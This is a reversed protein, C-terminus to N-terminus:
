EKVAGNEQVETEPKQGVVKVGQEGAGTSSGSNAKAAGDVEPKCPM